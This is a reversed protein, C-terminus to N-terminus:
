DWNWAEGRTDWEHPRTIYESDIMLHQREVLWRSRVKRHAYFKTPKNYRTWNGQDRQYKAFWDKRRINERTPNDSDNWFKYWYNTYQDLDKRRKTRSM